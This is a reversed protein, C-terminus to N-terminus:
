LTPNQQFLYDLPMFLLFQLLVSTSPFNLHSELFLAKRLFLHFLLSGSSSVYFGFSSSSCTLEVSCVPLWSFIEILSNLQPVSSLADVSSVCSVAWHSSAYMVLRSSSKCFLPVFSFLFAWFIFLRCPFYAKQSARYHFCSRSSSSFPSFLFFVFSDVYVLM